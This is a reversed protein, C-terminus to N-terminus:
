ALGLRDHAPCRGHFRSWAPGVGVNVIVRDVYADVVSVERKLENQLLQQQERLRKPPQRVSIQQWRGSLQYLDGVLVATMARDPNQPDREKPLVVRCLIQIGPKNAKVWVGIGLEETIPAKGIDVFYPVYTPKTLSIKIEESRQGGHFSDETIKHSQETVPGTAPGAIFFTDRSEFGLNLIQQATAAGHVVMWAAFILGLRFANWPM